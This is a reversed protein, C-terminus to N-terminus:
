PYASPDVKRVAVRQRFLHVSGAQQFLYKQQAAAVPLALLHRLAQQELIGLELDVYAPVANSMFSLQHINQQYYIVDGNGYYGNLDNQMRNTHWAPNYPVAWGATDVSQVQFDVVGDLIRRVSGQNQGGLAQLFGHYLGDPNSEFRNDPANTEYRYLIGVTGFSNIVASNTRVFYGIGTWTQNQHVLFFVDDMVNTRRQDGGPLAMYSYNVRQSQFNIGFQNIHLTHIQPAGAPTIQELEGALMDSAFRGSELIDTQTMGTRFARQTQNFMAMLGLIIVSMLAVAVMLEILSFASRAARPARRPLPSLERSGGSAGRREVKLM